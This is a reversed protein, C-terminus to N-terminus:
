VVSKRDKKMETVLLQVFQDKGMAGGAANTIANSASNSSSSSGTPPATDRAPAIGRTPATIM